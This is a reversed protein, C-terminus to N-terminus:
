TRQTWYHNMMVPIMGQPCGRCRLLSKQWQRQCVSDGLTVRGIANLARPMRRQVTNSQIFTKAVDGVPTVQNNEPEEKHSPPPKRNMFQRQGGRARRSHVGELLSEEQGKLAAGQEKVAERQRILKKAKELTLDPEM